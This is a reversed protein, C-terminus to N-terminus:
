VNRSRDFLWVVLLSSQREEEERREKQKSDTPFSPPMPVFKILGAEKKPKSPPCNAEM